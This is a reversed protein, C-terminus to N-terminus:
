DHFSEYRDIWIIEFSEKVRKWHNLAALRAAMGAAERTNGDDLKSEFKVKRVERSARTLVWHIDSDETADEYMNSEIDYKDKKFYRIEEPDPTDESTAANLVVLLYIPKYNTSEFLAELKTDSLLYIINTKPVSANAHPKTTARYIAHPFRGVPVQKRIATVMEKPDCIFVKMPTKKGVDLLEERIICANILLGKFAKYAQDNNQALLTKASRKFGVMRKAEDELKKWKDEGAQRWGLLAKSNSIEDKKTIMKGAM